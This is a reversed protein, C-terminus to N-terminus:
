CRRVEDRSNSEGVVYKRDKSIINETIHEPGVMYGGFVWQHPYPYHEVGAACLNNQRHVTTSFVLFGLCCVQPDTSDGGQRTRTCSKPGPTQVRLAGDIRWELLLQKRRPKTFYTRLDRLPRM